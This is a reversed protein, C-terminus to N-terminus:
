TLVPWKYNRKEANGWEYEKNVKIILINDKGSLKHFIRTYEAYSYRNFVNCINENQPKQKFKTTDKYLSIQHM